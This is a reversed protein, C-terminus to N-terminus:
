SLLLIPCKPLMNILSLSNLLYAEFSVLPVVSVVEFSTTKKNGYLGFQNIGGEM